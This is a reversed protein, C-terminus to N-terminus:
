TVSEAPAVASKRLSPTAFSESAAVKVVLVTAGDLTVTRYRKPMSDVTLSRPISSPRRASKAAVSPSLNSATANVPCAATASVLGSTSPIMFWSVEGVAGPAIAGGHPFRPPAVGM